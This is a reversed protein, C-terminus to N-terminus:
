GQKTADFMLCLCSSMVPRKRMSRISARISSMGVMRGCLSDKPAILRCLGTMTWSHSSLPALPKPSAAVIPPGEHFSSDGSPMRCAM